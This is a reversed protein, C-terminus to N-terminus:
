PRVEEPASKERFFIGKVHGYEEMRAIRALLLYSGTGVLIAGLVKVALPGPLYRACSWAAAAM